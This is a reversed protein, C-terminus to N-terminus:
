KVKLSFTEIEEREPDLMSLSHILVDCCEKFANSYALYEDKTLNALRISPSSKRLLSKSGDIKNHVEVPFFLVKRIFNGLSKLDQLPFLDFVVEPIDVPIVPHYEKEGKLADIEKQLFAIREQIEKNNM